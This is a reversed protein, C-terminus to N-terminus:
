LGSNEEPNRLWRVIDWVLALVIGAIALGVLIAVVGVVSGVLAMGAGQVSAPMTTIAGGVVAVLAAGGGVALVLEVVELLVDVVTSYTRAFVVAGFGISVASFLVVVDPTREDDWWVSALVLIAVGRTVVFLSCCAALFGFVPDSHLELFPYPPRFVGLVFGLGGAVLYGTLLVCFLVMGYHSVVYLAGFTRELPTLM